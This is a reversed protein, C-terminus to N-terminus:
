AIFAENLEDTDPPKGAIMGKALYDLLTLWRAMTAERRESTPCSAQLRMLCRFVQQCLMNLEDLPKQDTMRTGAHVYGSRLEYIQDIWSRQQEFSRGTGRFTIIAVRESV